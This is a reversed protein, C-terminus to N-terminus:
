PFSPCRSIECPVGDGDPDLNFNGAELCSYAQECSALQECTLGTGPCINGGPAPTSLPVSNAAGGVPTPTVTVPPFNGSPLTPNIAPAPSGVIVEGTVPDFDLFSSVASGPNLPSVLIAFEGNVPAEPTAVNQLVILYRGTAPITVPGVTLKPNGDSGRGTAIFNTPNDIPSVSLLHVVNSGSLQLTEFVLAQGATLDICYGTITRGPNMTDYLLQSVSMLSLIDSANQFTFLCEGEGPERDAPILETLRRRLEAFQQDAVSVVQLAGIVLAQGVPNGTGPQNCADIFLDIANRVNFMADNFLTQLPNLVPYYAALLPNPINYDSPRAPYPQCSARGTLAADTWSGRIADLSPQALDVRALMLRLTALYDEAVPQSIPLSEAIVGDVPVNVLAAGAMLEIYQTAVWGLTGEFNIQVWRNGLTRGLLPVVSNIPANALVPYGTSPGARVRLGSTLRVSIASTASTLGARPTEFGGYPITRPDAVPLTNVDGSLITLPALNVWGEDGNFEVRIWEGDPSRATVIEFLWGSPVTGLVDAGIAPVIRVNAFDNVVLAQVGTQALTARFSLGMLGLLMALWFAKRRM